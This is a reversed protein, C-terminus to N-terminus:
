KGSLNARFYEMVSKGLDWLAPTGAALRLVYRCLDEIEASITLCRRHGLMRLLRPLIWAWLPEPGRGLFTKGDTTCALVTPTEKITVRLFNVAKLADTRLRDRDAFADDLRLNDLFVGGCVYILLHNHEVREADTKLCSPDNKVREIAAFLRKLETTEDPRSSKQASPSITEVLQAALTSPPAANAADAVSAATLQAQQGLRGHKPPLESAM